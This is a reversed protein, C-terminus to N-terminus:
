KKNCPYTPKLAGWVLSSATYHWEAPNAEVYKSVMAVLQEVTTGEPICLMGGDMADTAGTVYGFLRAYERDDNPQARQEDSRKSAEIMHHLETGSVIGAASLDLQGCLFFAIAIGANRVAIGNIMRIGQPETFM